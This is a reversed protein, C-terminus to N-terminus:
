EKNLDLRSITYSRLGDFRDNIALMLIQDASAEAPNKLAADIAERRDLYNKANKYQFLYEELTKNEKKECLLVKEADFNILSPKAPSSFTFTDAKDNVWVTYRTPVTGNWLDIAVPLKFVKGSSQTQEVIVQAQRAADNYSYTITLKPHGSGYYWQNWYWNLDKGTVEEFALRLQQAEASRFKNTTLYLNLSKFFASDGVFNRLMNLIRGGKNYSVADFVDEKDNYYFRVLDKNESNSRIYGQMDKYNVAGAKDKGYKYENWLYESYNAFSENLTLNSWSECTVLDGFWQHFLEHAIDDEWRNGDTLERADQQAAEQHLTATTNEM